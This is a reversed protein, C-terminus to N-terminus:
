DSKDFAFIEKSLAEWVGSGGLKSRRFIELDSWASFM